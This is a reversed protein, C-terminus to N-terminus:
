DKRSKRSAIRASRKGLPTEVVGLAGSKTVKSSIERDNEDGKFKIKVPTTYGRSKDKDTKGKQSIISLVIIVTLIGIIGVVVFPMTSLRQTFGEMMHLLLSPSYDFSRVLLSRLQAIYCGLIIISTHAITHSHMMSADM